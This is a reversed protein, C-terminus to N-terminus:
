RPYKPIDLNIFLARSRKQPREIKAFLFPENIFKENALIINALCDGFHGSLIKKLKM